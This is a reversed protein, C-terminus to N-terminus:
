SGAAIVLTLGAIFFLFMATILIKIFPSSGSFEKWIYVGWIAAVLTAGQGLGYSIAAGAKGAAILNFLNGLAWIAGGALGIM